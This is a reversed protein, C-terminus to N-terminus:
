VAQVVRKTGESLHLRHSEDCPRPGVLFRISAEISPRGPRHNMWPEATAPRGATGRAPGSGSSGKRM